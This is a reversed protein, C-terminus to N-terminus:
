KSTLEELKDTLAKGRLNRELINGEKDIVVIHPIGTFQYLKIIEKGSDTAWVQKWPMKEVDLAKRWDSEKSDISVSLFEVNKGSFAEYDKKLNPIERRCPGCWSAWFDIVLFKGKFDQPGLYTKGDDAIYSFEPAMKGQALREKQTRAEDRDKKFTVLPPYNPNKKELGSLVEAVLEQDEPKNLRPLLALVSNVDSYSEVLFKVRQSSEDGLISYFSSSATQKAGDDIGPIRYVTQSVGIMLQYNRHNDWNYLNMLDNKPGGYIHVYPPNKIKVKATDMGRFNINLDEDEAWFSVAQWKQCDLQYLGPKELNLELKYTGDENVICSDHVIKDFGTREIVEMKFRNDPFKVKGQITIAYQAYSTGLAIIMTLIFAFIKKTNM